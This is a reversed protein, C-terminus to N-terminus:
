AMSFLNLMIVEVFVKVKRTLKSAKPVSSARIPIPLWIFCFGSPIEKPCVIFLLYSSCVADTLFKWRSADYRAVMTSLGDSMRM